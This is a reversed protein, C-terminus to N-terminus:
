RPRALFANEDTWLLLGSLQGDDPGGSGDGRGGRDPNWRQDGVGALVGSAAERFEEGGGNAVLVGAHGVQMRDVPEEGPALAVTDALEGVDLRQADGGIDLRQFVVELLWGDLLM